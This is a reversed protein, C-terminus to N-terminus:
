ILVKFLTIIASFVSVVVGLTTFPFFYQKDDKNEPDNELIKSLLRILFQKVLFLANKTIFTFILISWYIFIPIFTSCAYFGWQTHHTAFGTNKFLFVSSLAYEISYKAIELSLIIDKFSFKIIDGYWAFYLAVFCAISLFFAQFIFTLTWFIAKLSKSKIIKRLCIISLLLTTLDFVYNISYIPLPYMKIYFLTGDYAYKLGQTFYIGAVISLTTIISSILISSLLFRISVIKKGILIYLIKLASKSSSNPLDPIKISDIKIWFNLFWLYLGKKEKNLTLKDLAICISNILFLIALLTTLPNEM